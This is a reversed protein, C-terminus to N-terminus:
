MSLRIGTGSPNTLVGSSMMMEFGNVARQRSIRLGTEILSIVQECSYIRGRNLFRQAISVLKERKDPSIVEVGYPLGTEPNRLDLDEVLRLVEPNGQIMMQYTQEKTM